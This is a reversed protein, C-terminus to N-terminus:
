FRRLYENQQADRFILRGNKIERLWLGPVVETGITVKKGDIVARGNSGEMVAAVAFKRVLEHFDGSPVAAEAAPAVPAPAAAKQGALESTLAAQDKKNAAVTESVKGPAPAAKAPAPAPKAAAVPAAPKLLWYAGGALALLAVVLGVILPTRSKKAPAGDGVPMPPISVGLGPTSPTIATEPPPTVTKGKSKALAAAIHSVRAFKAPGACRSM